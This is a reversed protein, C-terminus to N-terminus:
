TELDYVWMAHPNAEFLERYRAQSERLGAEARRRETVDHVILFLLNRGDVVIPGSFVEVDRVSGDALRHAAEFRLGTGGAAAKMRRAVEEPPLTNIASIRMSALRERPWGYFAAAAANAEVIAGDAPDVVLMVTHGNDFLAHYRSESERLSAQALNRQSEKSALAVRLAEVEAIPAEGDAPPEERALSDLARSLRRSTYFGGAISVLTAGLVAVLLAVASGVIPARFAEAPISIELVWRALASAARFFDEAPDGPTAAPAPPWSAILEGKSDRLRLRWGAPLALAALRDAFAKTEVTSLLLHTIRGERKVPVVVAFLPEGAIPGPFVDGVAPRGTALVEPVAAHGRPRPLAPLPQGAPVRTNLLMQGGPDALIVHGGYHAHFGMAEARLDRWQAPDDIHPSNALVQLGLVHAELQRDVVQMANTARDLAERARDERLNAVRDWAFWGALAALPLVCLLILRTLFAGITM